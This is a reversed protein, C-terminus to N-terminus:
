WQYNIQQKELICFDFLWSYGAQWDNKWTFITNESFPMGPAHLGDGLAKGPYWLAAESYRLIHAEWKTGCFLLPMCVCFILVKFTLLTLQNILVGMPAQSPFCCCTAIEFGTLSLMKGLSGTSPETQLQLCLLFTVADGRPVHARTSPPAHRFAM